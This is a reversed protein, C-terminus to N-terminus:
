AKKEIKFCKHIKMNRQFDLDITERSIDSVDFLSLIDEDIKFSRLNNSFYLTGGQNLLEMCRKILRGHDRQVDFTASMKKSNSFSPPDLMILDYGRRCKQLWENVDARVLKHKDSRINNLEFNHRSWDIYTNSMDVSTSERAGGLIAHVSASSTYSFLNLFSRGKAESAIKIRLPRHDLFLGTDLYSQLNVLLNAKGESVTLFEEQKLASQKEYQKAGRNKMRTKTFIDSSAHGFVHKAADIIENFRQKARTEDVSKPAQYEQIHLKDNYIDIAASYEPMDADYVRYCDIKNKSKWSKLKRLNKEIRNAVMSAGSSLPKTAESTVTSAQKDRSSADSGRERKAPASLSYLRFECEIAGNFIRYKKDYRLRTESLLEKSSSLVGMSWDPFREKSVQALTYYDSTLSEVEGLRMGYPPNVLILGVAQEASAKYDSDALSLHSLSCHKELGARKINERAQALVRSDIECGYFHNGLKALGETKRATAKTFVEEWVPPQHKFWSQFGFHERLLGPAIDAAMMAAEVLFTGSGCMPDVFDGGAKSISPWKARMLLAAALNEKIPASGKALRYNRKHLSEGSLDLAIYLSKPTLRVNIRHDPANVDVDPRELGQSLFQDVIADKVVRAGYLTHRISDNRGAFDVRIREGEGFHGGWDVSSAVKYLHDSDGPKSEALILLVRNALRSWLCVRYMQDLTAECRIGTVTQKIDSIGIERLEDGLLEELGAPCTVFLKLMLDPMDIVFFWLSFLLM